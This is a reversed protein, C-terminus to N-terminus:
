ETLIEITCLEVTDGSGQVYVTAPELSSVGDFVGSNEDLEYLVPVGDNPVNLSDVISGGNTVIEISVPITAGVGGGTLPSYSLSFRIGHVPTLNSNYGLSDGTSFLPSTIRWCGGGLPNINNAAVVPTWDPSTDVWFLAVGAASPTPTVSSTPTPVMSSTPSPTPSVSPVPTPKVVIDDKEIKPYVSEVNGPDSYLIGDVFIFSNNKKQQGIEGVDILKDLNKDAKDYPEKALLMLLQKSKIDQSDNTQSPYFNIGTITLRTLQPIDDLSDYRNSIVRFNILNKTKVNFNRRRRFLLSRFDNWPSLGAEPGRLIESCFIPEENPEELVIDIQVDGDTYVEPYPFLPNFYKSIVAFSLTNNYSVQFLNESPPITEVNSETISRSILHVQGTFSEDFIVELVNSSSYHVTFEDSELPTIKLGDESEIFIKVVPNTNLNHRVIWKDSLIKQEYRFFVKRPLFNDLDGEPDAEAFAERFNYPNRDLKYLRGRCGSTIVCSSFVTLGKSNELLEIERKCTDCQYKVTAM